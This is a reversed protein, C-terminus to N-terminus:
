EEADTDDVGEFEVDNAKFLSVLWAPPNILTAPNGDSHIDKIEAIDKEIFPRFRDCETLCADIYYKELAEEWVEQDSRTAKRAKEKQPALVSPKAPSIKEGDYRGDKLAQLFEDYDEPDDLVETTGDGMCMEFLEYYDFDPDYKFTM